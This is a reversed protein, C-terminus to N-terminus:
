RRGRQGIKIRWEELRMRARRLRYRWGRRVMAFERETAGIPSVGEAHAARVLEPQGRVMHFPWGAELLEYEEEDVEHITIGGYFGIAGSWEQSPPRELEVTARIREIQVPTAYGIGGQVIM